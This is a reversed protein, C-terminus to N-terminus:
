PKGSVRQSFQFQSFITFVPFFQGTWSRRDSPWYRPNASRFDFMSMSSTM